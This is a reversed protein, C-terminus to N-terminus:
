RDVLLSVNELSVIGVKAFNRRLLEIQQRHSTCYAPDEDTIYRGLFWGAAFTDRWTLGCALGQAILELRPELACLACPSGLAEFMTTM